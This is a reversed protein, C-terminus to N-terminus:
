RQANYYLVIDNLIIHRFSGAVVPSYKMKVFLYHGRMRSLSDSASRPIFLRSMRFRRQITSVNANIATLYDSWSSMGTINENYHINPDNADVIDHTWELANFICDQEAQEPNLCLTLEMDYQTGYFNCTNHGIFHSWVSKENSLPVSHLKGDITFMTSAPLDLISVFKRAKENYVLTETKGSDDSSQRTITFFVDDTIPDYSLNYSPKYLLNTDYGKIYASMGLSDSLGTVSQGDIINITRRIRDGYYVASSTSVIGNFDACGSNTNIYQYTSLVQGVGLEIGIADSGQIQVRPLVSVVAVGDRQFVYLIDNFKVMRNIAGFEGELYIEENVLVDLWSDITEGSTKAKSALIRNTFKTNKVFLFPDPQSVLANPEQSYALNYKHFTDNTPMFTTNWSGLSTDNRMKLNITTEVPISVIETMQMRNDSLQVGDIRAIRAFKFQGVFVDGSNIITSVAPATTINQYTGVGIYKNISRDEYSNGGYQNEIDNIIEFMLVNDDATSTKGENVFALGFISEMTMGADDVMTINQSAIADVGYLPTDWADGNPAGGRMWEVRGDALISQLSNTYKYQGYNSYSSVATEHRGLEPAGLIARTNNASSSLSTNFAYERYYHILQETGIGDDDKGYGPRPHNPGIYGSFHLPNVYKDGTSNVALNTIGIRSKDEWVDRTAVYMMRGHVSRTTQKLTGAVRYKMGSNLIPGGFTSEPSFIQLVKTDQYSIHLWTSGAPVNDPDRYIEVWPYVHINSTSYTSHPSICSNHSAANIKVNQAGVQGPFMSASIDVQDQIHRVWPSSIKANGSNFVAGQSENSNLHADDGTVQFIMPTVIGQAVVTRDIEQREVRLFKYGVIGQAQLRAKGAESIIFTITVRTNDAFGYYDNPAKVDCIWQPTSKKSKANYFEVGWRYVEGCKMYRSQDVNYGAATIAATSMKDVTYSIFRGEGGPSTNSAPNYFYTDKAQKCDHIAPVDVGGSTYARGVHNLTENGGFTSSIVVTSNGYTCSYARTDFYNADSVGLGDNIDWINDTINAMILRNKKSIIARPVIDTGGLYTLAELTIPYKVRGDDTFILTGNSTNTFEDVVSVIPATNLDSYKISYLRIYDYNQDINDIQVVNSMGVVENVAGGGQTAGKGMYVLESAPSLKTQGGSMNFLNYAYQLAGAIHSGGMVQERVFPQSVTYEPVMYLVKKPKDIDAGGLINLSFVQHVGDAIYMKIVSESETNVVIDFTSAQNWGLSNIYLLEIGGRVTTQESYKWICDIGLTSTTLLYTSPGDSCAALIKIGTDPTILLSNLGVIETNTKGTFVFSQNQTAGATISFTATINGGAGSISIISNISFLAENGSQSKIVGHTGINQDDGDSYSSTIRGNKLMFYQDKARKSPPLDVNMGGSYTYSDKKVM